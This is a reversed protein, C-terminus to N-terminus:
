DRSVPEAKGDRTLGSMRTWKNRGHHQILYINNVRPSKEKRDSEEAVADM